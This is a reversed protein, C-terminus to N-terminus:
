KQTLERAQIYHNLDFQKSSLQGFSDKMFESAMGQDSALIIKVDEWAAIEGAENKLEKQLFAIRLLNSAYLASKKGNVEKELAEKLSVSEELAKQYGKQEILVSTTAFRAYNPLIEKLLQMSFLDDIKIKEIQGCGILTQVIEPEITKRFEPDKKLSKILQSYLKEDTPNKVWAEYAVQADVLAKHNFKTNSYAIMASVVLIAGLLYSYVKARNMFFYSIIKEGLEAPAVSVQEEKMLFKEMKRYVEEMNDLTQQFTFKELVLHHGNEGYQTCLAKNKKLELVAEVVQDPSFTQVLIGTKRDICVESLGGTKTAILPKKLFAAQLIAQSVGEHATSLLAFADLAQIAAFPSNLHGTFHVTDELGLDKAKQIYKEFHGGGIIVWRIEEQDKLIKAAMLFDDIGKWSRMFCATGVIFASEGGFKTRFSAMEEKHVDIQNTQVGTPISVVRSFDKKSEKAILFVIAECTTVVFDALFGYLIRSNFGKKINTSLHRTRLIQIGAIRGTIGGIWSDLSSHTNILDIQNKKIIWLLRFLAGIWFIKRFDLEYVIFGELKARMGIKAGKAVAFIITHGRKRMGISENLIRIEQGGWGKSAETHLIKM